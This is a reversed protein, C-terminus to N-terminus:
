KNAPAREQCAKHDEVEKQLSANIENLETTLQENLATSSACQEHAAVLETETNQITKQLVAIKISTGDLKAKLECSRDTLETCRTKVREVQADAHEMREKLVENEKELDTVKKNGEANAEQLEKNESTLAAVTAELDTIQQLLQADHVIENEECRKLDAMVTMIKTALM